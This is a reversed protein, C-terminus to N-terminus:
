VRKVFIASAAIHGTFVAIYQMTFTTSIHSLDSVVVDHPKIAYRFRNRRTIPPWAISATHIQLDEFWAADTREACGTALNYFMQECQALPIEVSKYFHYNAACHQLCYKSKENRAIWHYRPNAAYALSMKSM